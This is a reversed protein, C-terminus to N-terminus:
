ASINGIIKDALDHRMKEMQSAMQISEAYNNADKLANLLQKPDGSQQAQQLENQISSFDKPGSAGQSGQGGLLGGLSGFPNMMVGPNFGGSGFPSPM